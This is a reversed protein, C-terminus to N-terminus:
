GGRIIRRIAEIERPDYPRGDSHLLDHFWVDPEPSGETSGWPFRTQTRGAVLGWSLCGVGRERFLPLDREWSSGLHRAMWETCIMPRGYTELNDTAAILGAHDAYRHFTVIDSLALCAENIQALEDTWVGVTLPQRPNQSRAWQFAAQVLPLSESGLGSNGPENYLDWAVIRPDDAFAGVTGRIYAEIPGWRSTDTVRERGPSAVWRSNHVGPVPAPQPGGQPQVGAFNCDDLLVPMVGIGEAEAVSLFRGLTNILAESDEEWVLVNIFVRVCNFGLDSAWGLERAITEADFTERRWMEIDNVATSTVYNCGVPWAHGQYWAWAHEVSWRSPDSDGGAVPGGQLAGILGVGILRLVAM